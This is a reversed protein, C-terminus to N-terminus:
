LDGIIWGVSGDASEINLGEEDKWCRYSVTAPEFRIAGAIRDEDHVGVEHHGDYISEEMRDGYLNAACSSGAVVLVRLSRGRMARIEGMAQEFTIPTAETTTISTM